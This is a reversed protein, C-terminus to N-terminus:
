DYMTTFSKGMSSYKGGDRDDRVAPFISNFYTAVYEVRRVLNDAITRSLAEREESYRLAGSCLNELRPRELKRFWDLRMNFFSMDYKLFNEAKLPTLYRTKESRTWGFKEPTGEIKIGESVLDVNLFDVAVLIQNNHSNYRILYNNPNRDEDSYIWRNILDLMLQEKLEVIETYNAGSLQESRPVIKTAKYFEGDIRTIIAPASLSKVIHDVLFCIMAMETARVATADIKRVLWTSGPDNRERAGLYNRIEAFFPVRMEPAPVLFDDTTYRALIEETPTSLELASVLDQDGAFDVTNTYNFYEM